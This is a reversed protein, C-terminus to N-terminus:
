KYLKITEQSGFLLKTKDGAKQCYEMLKISNTQFRQFKELYEMSGSEDALCVECVRSFDINKVKSHIYRQQWPYNYLVLIDTADTALIQSYFQELAIDKLIDRYLDGGLKVEGGAIYKLSSSARLLGFYDERSFNHVELFELRSNQSNNCVWTRLRTKSSLVAQVDLAKKIKIVEILYDIDAINWFRLLNLFKKGALEQYYASAGLPMQGALFYSANIFGSSMTYIEDFAGSLGLEELAILAGAGRVSVMVGGFLVLSIKRGDGIPVSKNKRALLYEVVLPMKDQIM